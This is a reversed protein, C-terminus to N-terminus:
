REHTLPPFPRVSSSPRDAQLCRHLSDRNCGRWCCTSWPPGASRPAPDPSCGLPACRALLARCLAPAAARLPAPAPTQRRGKGAHGNQVRHSCPLRNLAPSPGNRERHHLSNLRLHNHPNGRITIRQRMLAGRRRNSRASSASSKERTATTTLSFSAAAATSRSGAVCSERRYVLPAARASLQVRVGIGGRIAGDGARGRWACDDSLREGSRGDLDGLHAACRCLM